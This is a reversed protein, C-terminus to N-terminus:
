RDAISAPIINAVYIQNPKMDDVSQYQNEFVSSYNSLVLGVRENPGREIEILLPGVSFELNQIVSVDYEITLNSLRSADFTKLLM